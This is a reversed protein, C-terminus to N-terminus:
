FKFRAVKQELDHATQSLRTVASAIEETADTVAGVSASVQEATSANTESIQSIAELSRAVQASGASMEETAASNEETIAAVSSVAEMAEQGVRALQRAAAVITTANEKTQEVMGLIEHLAGGAQEAMRVGEAVAETGTEMGAVAEATDHQIRSILGAIEEASKGAREALKRVEDAVVAFGRGHEGARAAEIAANLALLNTQGAIETITHTISGIQGSLAGLERIREASELVTVRIRGMCAENQAVVTRGGQAKSAARESATAVSQAKVAVDEIATVIESVATTTHQASVAQEQAGAAIQDIATRFEGMVQLTQEVSGAQHSAGQAVVMVAQGADGAMRAVRETQVTLQESAAAVNLSSAQVDKLLHRLTGLFKNFAGTLDALEDRSAAQLERTLDGGGAALAELQHTVGKVGRVIGRGVLLSLLAALVLSGLAIPLLAMIFRSRLATFRAEPIGVFPGAIVKGAHDKLPVYITKQWEGVVQARGQYEKGARLSEMVPISYITGVARQDTSRGNADKKRVNTTVRVGDLAITATVLGGTRQQVEDVIAYNQNLVEAAIVAGVIKGSGNKVPAVGVLSLADTMQKEKREESGQTPAIEVVVQKRLTDGEPAWESERILAPSGMAQGQLAKDVLGDIKFPQGRQDSNARSAVKGDAGVATLIHLDTLPTQINLLIARIAAHDGKEMAEALGPATAAMAARDTAAKLHDNILAQEIQLALHLQQRANMEIDEDINSLTIWSMSSIAVLLGLAAAGFVKALIGIRFRKILRGTKM